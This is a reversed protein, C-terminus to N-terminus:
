PLSPESALRLMGKLFGARSRIEGAMERAVRRKFDKLSVDIEGELDFLRKSLKEVFTLVLQRLVAAKVKDSVTYKGLLLVEDTWPFKQQFQQRSGASSTTEVPCEGTISRSSHDEQKEFLRLLNDLAIIRLMITAQNGLKRRCQLCAIAEEMSYQLEQDLRLLLELPIDERESDWETIRTLIQSLSSYCKGTCQIGEGQDNRNPPRCKRENEQINPGSLTPQNHSSKSYSDPFPAINAHPNLQDDLPHKSLTIAPSDAPTPISWLSSASHSRERFGRCTTTNANRDLPRSTYSPKSSYPVGSSDCQNPPSTEIPDSYEWGRIPTNVTSPQIDSGTQAFHREQDSVQPTIASWHQFPHTPIMQTTQIHQESRTGFPLRMAIDLDTEIERLHMQQWTEENIEDWCMEAVEMTTQQGVQLELELSHHIDPKRKSNSAVQKPPRGIKRFLSYVCPEGNHSCRWCKPKGRSCKVKSKQCGDCATRVRQMSIIAETM